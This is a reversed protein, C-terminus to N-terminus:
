MQKLIWNQKSVNTLMPFSSRRFLKNFIIILNDKIKPM